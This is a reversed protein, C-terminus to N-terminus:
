INDIWYYYSFFMNLVFIGYFVVFGLGVRSYGVFAMMLISMSIYRESYEGLLHAVVASFAFLLYMFGFVNKITKFNLYSFAIYTIVWMLMYKDGITQADIYARRDDFYQLLLTKLVVSFFVLLIIPSLYGVWKSSVIRSWGGLFFGFVIVASYTHFSFALAYFLARVYRVLFFMSFILIAFAFALRQQSSIFDIVRPHFFLIVFPYAKVGNCYFFCFLLVFASVFTLCRLLFEPEVYNVSLYNFWYHFHVESLLYDFFGLDRRLFVREYRDFNSIYVNIDSSVVRLRIDFFYNSLLLAYIVSVIFFLFVGRVTNINRCNAIM